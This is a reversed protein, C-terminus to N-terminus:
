SSDGGLFGPMIQIKRILAYKQELNQLGLFPYVAVAEWNGENIMKSCNAAAKPNALNKQHDDAV